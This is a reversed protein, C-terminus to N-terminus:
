VLCRNILEENIKQKLQKKKEKHIQQLKLEFDSCGNSFIIQELDKYIKSLDYNIHIIEFHGNIFIVEKSM